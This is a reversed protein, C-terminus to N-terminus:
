FMLVFILFPVDSFEHLGDVLQCQCKAAPLFFFDEKTEQIWLAAPSHTDSNLRSQQSPSDRPIFQFCFLFIRISSSSVFILFFFFFSVFYNFSNKKQAKLPACGFTVVAVGASAWDSGSIFNRERLCELQAMVCVCVAAVRCRGGNQKQFKKWALRETAEREGGWCCCFIKKWSKKKKKVLYIRRSRQWAASTVGYFKYSITEKSLHNTSVSVDEEDSRFFNLNM